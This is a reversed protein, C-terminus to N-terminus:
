YAFTFVDSSPAEDPEDLEVPKRVARVILVAEVAALIGYVLTLVIVSTLAEGATLKGSVAQATFM